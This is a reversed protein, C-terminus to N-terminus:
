GDQADNKEAMDYVSLCFKDRARATSTETIDITEAIIWVVGSCFTCIMPFPDVTDSAVESVEIVSNTGTPIEGALAIKGSRSKTFDPPFSGAEDGAGHFNM